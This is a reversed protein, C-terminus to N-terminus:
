PREEENLRRQTQEVRLAAAAKAQDSASEDRVVEAWASWALLHAVQESTGWANM